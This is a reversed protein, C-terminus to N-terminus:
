SSEISKKKVDTHNKDNCNDPKCNNQDIIKYGNKRLFDAAMDEGLKGLTKNLQKM